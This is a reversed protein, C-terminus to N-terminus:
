SEAFRSEWYEQTYWQSPVDFQINYQREILGLSARIENPQRGGHEIYCKVLLFTEDESLVENRMESLWKSFGIAPFQKETFAKVDGKFTHGFPHADMEKRMFDIFLM